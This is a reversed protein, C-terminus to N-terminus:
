VWEVKRFWQDIVLYFLKRHVDWLYFWPIWWDFNVFFGVSSPRMHDYCCVIINFIEFNKVKQFVSFIFSKEESRKPTTRPWHLSHQTSPEFPTQKGSLDFNWSKQLNIKLKCQTLYQDNESKTIKYILNLPESSFNAKSEQKNESIEFTTIGFVHPPVIEWDDVGPGIQFKVEVSECRWFISRSM